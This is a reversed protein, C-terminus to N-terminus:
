RAAGDARDADLQLLLEALRPDLVEDIVPDYMARLQRGLRVRTQADLVPGGAVPIVRLAAPAGGPGTRAAQRSAAPRPAANQPEFHPM